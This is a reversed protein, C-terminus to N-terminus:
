KVLMEDLTEKIAQTKGANLKGLIKVVRRKDVTRIQDLVIWGAKNQFRISIRTPYPHSKTTM